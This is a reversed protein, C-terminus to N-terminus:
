RGKACHWIDFWHRIEPNEERMYKKVMSHRDTVLEVIEIGKETMDKIARKLGELEMHYSNKVESSQLHFIFVHIHAVSQSFSFFFFNSEDYKVQEM